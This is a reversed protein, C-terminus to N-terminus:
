LLNKKIELVTLYKQKKECKKPTMSYSCGTKVMNSKWNCNDCPNDKLFKDIKWKKFEVFESAYRKLAERYSKRGANFGIAYAEDHIKRTEIM